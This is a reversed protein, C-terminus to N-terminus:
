YHCRSAGRLIHWGLCGHLGVGNNVVNLYQRLLRFPAATPLTQLPRTKPERRQRGCGSKSGAISTNLSRSASHCNRAVQWSCAYGDDRRLCRRQEVDMLKPELPPRKSGMGM